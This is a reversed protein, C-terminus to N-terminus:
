SYEKDLIIILTFHVPPVYVQLYLRPGWVKFICMWIDLSALQDLDDKCINIHSLPMSVHQSSSSKIDCHIILSKIHRHIIHPVVYTHRYEIDRAVELALCLRALWLTLLPSLPTPLKELHDHLTDNSM